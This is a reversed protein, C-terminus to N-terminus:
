RISEPMWNSMAKHQCLEDVLKTKSLKSHQSEWEQGIEKKGIDLLRKATVRKYYSDKTPQWYNALSFGTNESITKDVNTNSHYSLATCYTLIKKKQVSSLQQFASFKKTSDKHSLWSLELTEKAHAILTAAKTGDIGSTSQYNATSLNIDIPTTSYGSSLVSSAISFTMLDSALKDDKMIHSQLAQLKYNKLDSQLAQSETNTSSESLTNGSKKDNSDTPFAKAIDEKKVFDYDITAKGERNVKIIAGSVQKQEDTFRRYKNIKKDLASLENELREELQDQEDTWQEYDIDHLANLAAEKEQIATKITDPVNIPEPTIVKEYAIQSHNSLVIDVWKWQKKLSNAKKSLVEMALSEILERDNIYSSSEFLDTTLTGGAKKYAKVTVFKVIPEETSLAKELLFQKVNYPSFYHSKLENYCDLQRQHDDRVTFAMIHELTIREERYHEILEPAVTAMKLREKVKKQTIGFEHAIATISKGENIMNQFAIFEDSPHMKAKINESLSIASVSVTNAGKILCPVLYNHAIAGEEALSNLQKLRRGGAIVAYHKGEKIVVLCQTIGQSKISAKLLKDDEKSAAVTRVNLKSLILQSLKIYRLNEKEQSIKM